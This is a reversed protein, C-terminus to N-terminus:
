LLGQKKLRILAPHNSLYKLVKPKIQNVLDQEKLFIYAELLAIYENPAQKIEESKDQVSLAPHTLIYELSEFVKQVDFDYKESLFQNAFGLAKQYEKKALALKLKAELYRYDQKNEPFRNLMFAAREYNELMLLADIELLLYDPNEYEQWLVHATKWAESSKQSMQTYYSNLLLQDFSIQGSVIQKLIPNPQMQVEQGVPVFPWKQMMEEVLQYAYTSDTEAIAFSFPAEVDQQVINREKLLLWSVKEFATEAWLKQGELNAHVHELLLENGVISNRSEFAGKMDLLHAQYAEALKPITAEIQSTARFKILDYDRAKEFSQKALVTDKALLLKKGENFAHTASYANDSSAFPSFDKVNSVLTSILVPVGKTQYDSLTKKLNAQYQEVGLMAIKSGHPIQEEQVMQSMLTEGNRNTSVGYSRTIVKKLLQVIRLNKLRLYFNTVMPYRGLSQSSGVGLAGYYENHGSYIIVMDPQQELIEPVMDRITYSNTAVLSTNVVEISYNPYYYQLKQELLRPFSAARFPFGASSSAGQVFIRITKETKIKKFPDYAGVTVFDKNPFYREAVAPNMIFQSRNMPNTIFLPPANEGVQFFRLSLEFLGLFFFPVLLTILYFFRKKRGKVM